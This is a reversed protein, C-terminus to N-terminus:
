LRCAHTRTEHDVFNGTLKISRCVSYYYLLSHSECAKSISQQHDPLDRRSRQRNWYCRVHQKARGTRPQRARCVRVQSSPRERHRYVTTSLTLWQARPQSQLCLSSVLSIESQSELTIEYENNVNSFQKKAIQIKAKSVFYVKGEELLTYFSDVADNFGTMKIEGSEDLLTCSFLKGEGRQNSWHRIDSKNTVRAKITWKNQYPSLGEIPYIPHSQGSGSAASNNNNRANNNGRNAPANRAAGGANGGGRANNGAAGNRAAAGGGNAQYPNANNNNNTTDAGDSSPAQEQQQQATMWAEIAAPNGIKHDCQGVVELSHM